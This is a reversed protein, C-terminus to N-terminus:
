GASNVAEQQTAENTEKDTDALELCNAMFADFGNFLPSGDKGTLEKKEAAYLGLLKRREIGLRTIEAQYRADGFNIEEKETKEIHTTRITSDLEGKKSIGAGLEGKQKQHKTKHDTKSKEWAEWLETIQSDIRELEVQLALDMDEIRTQRWEKLLSQVDGHVTKLSYTELGLRKMVETKIKPYSYSKKYLEAVIVM